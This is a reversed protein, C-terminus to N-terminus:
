MFKKGEKEYENPHYKNIEMSFDDVEYTINEEYWGGKTLFNKEPM